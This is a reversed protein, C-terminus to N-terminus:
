EAAERVLWSGDLTGKGTERLAWAERDLSKRAVDCDMHIDEILGQLDDYDKEERIFGAILLRMEVGYFDTGFEHLMHAEASRVTNKYFKNYGISMVMPYVSFGSHAEQFTATTTTTTDSATTPQNPHSPPLRLSAWGFYVGSKIDVIWPTLNEDVPLNATPIGLEKSGRGFGKIVKGEMQLPYPAELGMSPGNILPHATLLPTM